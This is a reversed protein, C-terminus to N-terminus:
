KPSLLFLTSLEIASDPIFSWAGTGGGDINMKWMKDNAQIRWHGEIVKYNGVVTKLDRDIEIFKQALIPPSFFPLFGEKSKN